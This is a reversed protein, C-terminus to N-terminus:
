DLVLNRGRKPFWPVDLSITTGNHKGLGDRLVMALRGLNSTCTGVFVDAAAMQDLDAMM